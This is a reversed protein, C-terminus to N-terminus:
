ATWYERFMDCELCLGSPEFIEASCTDGCKPCTKVPISPGGDLSRLEKAEYYRAGCSFDGGYMSAPCGMFLAAGEHHYGARAASIKNGELDLYTEVKIGQEKIDRWDLAM